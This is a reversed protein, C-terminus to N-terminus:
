NEPTQRYAFRAQPGLETEHARAAELIAAAPGRSGSEKLWKEVVADGREAWRAREEPSLVTVTQGEAKMFELDDLVGKDTIQGLRRALGEGSLDTFVKQIDAPLSNWIDRNIVLYFGNSKANAVYSHKAAEYVRTSRIYAFPCMVGTVQGRQLSLYLDNPSLQVASAGLAGLLDIYSGSIAGIQAGRLEELTSLPKGSSHLQDVASSWFTLVHTESFEKRIEPFQQYLRWNSVAGSEASSYLFPLDMVTALPFKGRNRAVNHSGISVLGTRVSEYTDGEPCLTNPNYFEIVVRGGTGQRIEEAWGLLGTAIVPHNDMFTSTMSLRLPKEATYEAAHVPAATLILSALIALASRKM